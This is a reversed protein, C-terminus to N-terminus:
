YLNGAASRNGRSFDWIYDALNLEQGCRRWLPEIGGVCQRAGMTSVEASDANDGCKMEDPWAPGIGAGSDCGDRCYNLELFGPSDQGKLLHTKYRNLVKLFETPGSQQEYTLESLVSQLSKGLSGYVALTQGSSGFSDEAFDAAPYDALGVQRALLFRQLTAISICYDIGTKESGVWNIEQDKMVCPTLFAFRDSIGRFNRLYLSTAVVPSVVPMLHKALEPMRRLVSMVVAPCASAIYSAQRGEAIIRSYAWVVIDAHALVSYFNRFGGIQRLAGFLRRYDGFHKQAAPSVLLSFNAGTEIEEFLRNLDTSCLRQGSRSQQNQPDAVFM